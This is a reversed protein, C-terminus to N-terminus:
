FHYGEIKISLAHLDSYLKNLEQTLHEPYGEEDMLRFAEKLQDKAENILNIENAATKKLRKM